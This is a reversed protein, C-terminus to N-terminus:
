QHEEIFLPMPKGPRDARIRAHPRSIRKAAMALYDPNIDLGVYERNLANAVVGTAGAGNFPDLVVDGLRSGAKICREPIAPPFTAFHAGQFARVPITWVSRGNRRGGVDDWVEDNGRAGEADLYSLRAERKFGNGSQHDSIAAEKSAEHDYYYRESKTLLFVFEHSRTPRDEISEPMPNPKSWVIDSRLYWGDARLAFAVMWPIGILDKPKLSKDRLGHGSALDARAGSRRQDIGSSPGANGNYANYCDGLNLWLTGDDALVRRVERFVAVMSVVYAEPTPELGLQGDAGYDRLGWYPPSTVCCQVSRDALPIRRADAKILLHTM